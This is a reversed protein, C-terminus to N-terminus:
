QDSDPSNLAGCIIPPTTFPMRTLIDETIDTRLSLTRLVESSNSTKVDNAATAGNSLSRDESAEHM